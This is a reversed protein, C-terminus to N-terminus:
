QNSNHLFNFSIAQIKPFPSHLSFTPKKPSPNKSLATLRKSREGGM